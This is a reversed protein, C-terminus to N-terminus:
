FEGLQQALVTPLYCLCGAGGVALTVKQALAAGTMLVVAALAAATNRISHKLMANEERFSQKM